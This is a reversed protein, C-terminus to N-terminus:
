EWTVIQRDTINFVTVLVYARIFAITMTEWMVMIEEKSLLNLEYQNIWVKLYSQIM